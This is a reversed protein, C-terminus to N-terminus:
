QKDESSQLAEKTVRSVHNLEAVNLWMITKKYNDHSEHLKASSQGKRLVRMYYLVTYMCVYAYVLDSIYFLYICTYVVFFM